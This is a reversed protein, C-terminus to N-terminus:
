SKRSRGVLLECYVADTLELMRELRFEREVRDRGRRSLEARLAPDRLRLTANRFADHDGRPILIGADGVAEANGPVSSAIIPVGAWMAELLALPLGEWMSTSLLCDSAALVRRVDDRHGLFRVNPGAERRARSLLPGDGSALMVVNEDEVARALSIALLPDKAPDFRGLFLLVLQCEGIELDQRANRREDNTVLEQRPVGNRVVRVKRLDVGIEQLEVAESESVCVLLDALRAVTRVFQRALGRGVRGAPRRLPHLGHFTVVSPTRLAPLSWLAARTGHVHILDTRRALDAIMLSKRPTPPLLHVAGAGDWKRVANLRGPQTRPVVVAVHAGGAASHRLLERACAAGGGESSQLVHLIRANV